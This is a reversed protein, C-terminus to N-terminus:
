GQKRFRKLFERKYHKNNKNEKYLNLFDRNSIKTIDVEDDQEYDLLTQYITNVKITRKLDVGAIEVIAKNFREGNYFIPKNPTVYRLIGLSGKYSGSGIICNENIKLM